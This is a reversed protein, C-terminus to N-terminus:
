RFFRASDLIAAAQWQAVLSGPPASRHYSGAIAASTFVVLKPQLPRLASLVARHEKDAAMAVVLAVPQEPFVRRLTDALAAASEATHAGDAVLWRAGPRGGAAAASAPSAADTGPHLPLVQFRGPLHARALGQLVHEPGIAFGQRVLVSATAIATAANGHQHPGVLRLEGSTGSSSSSSSSTGNGGGPALAEQLGEVRVAEAVAHQRDGPALRFGASSVRALQEARVLPSCGLRGAEALLVGLAAESPQAAIVAPRGAKMIGAKAAAISEISGGLAQVHEMGLPTVVAAALNEPEFVNTADERGGMGVEVVALQAGADAFHRLALATLVEFHTLAGGERQLAAALAASNRAVLADLQQTSIPGGSGTSIRESVDM